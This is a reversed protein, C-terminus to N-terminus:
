QKIKESLNFVGTIVLEQGTKIETLKKDMWERVAEGQWETTLLYPPGPYSVVEAHHKHGTEDQIVYSIYTKM